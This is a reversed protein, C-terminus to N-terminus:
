SWAAASESSVSTASGPIAGTKMPSTARRQLPATQLALRMNQLVRDTNEDSHIYGKVLAPGNGDPVYTDTEHDLRSPTEIVVGGSCAQRLLDAAIEADIGAVEVAIELWPGSEPTTM